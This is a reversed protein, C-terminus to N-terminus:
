SRIGVPWTDIWYSLGHSPKHAERAKGTLGRGEGVVDRIAKEGINKGSYARLQLPGNRTERLFLYVKDFKMVESLM